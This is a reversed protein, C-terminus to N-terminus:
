TTASDTFAEEAFTTNLYNCLETQAFDGKFKAYENRNNHLARAFLIYESLLYAKEDDTTLVRWLIPMVGGDATQKYQGLHLYVYGEEKTYGRLGDEALASVSLILAATLLLLVRRGQRVLRGIM